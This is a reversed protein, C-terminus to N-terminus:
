IQTCIMNLEEQCGLFGFNNLFCILLWLSARNLALLVDPGAYKTHNQLVIRLPSKLPFINQSYSIIKKHKGNMAQPFRIFSINAFRQVSGKEKFM